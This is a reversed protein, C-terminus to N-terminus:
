SEIAPASPTIVEGSSALHEAFDRLKINSRSSARSLLIFARQATIKYREVLLERAATTKLPTSRGVIRLERDLFLGAVVERPETIPGIVAGCIIEVTKRHKLKLWSRAGPTYPQSLNPHGRYSPTIEPGM